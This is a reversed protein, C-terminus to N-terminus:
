SDRASLPLLFSAEEEEEELSYVVMSILSM